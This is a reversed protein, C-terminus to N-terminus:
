KVKIVDLTFDLGAASNTLKSTSIWDVGLKGYSCLNSLTVGGSVEVLIKRRLGSSILAKMTGKVRSPKMNDLMVLGAGSEAATLADDKSAVEVEIKSGFGGAKAAKVAKQIDGCFAELHNDKLLIMDYLGMRHTLGGGLLVAKKDLMMLGPATKRTAVIKSKSGISALVGVYKRTLTTIGSMRSLVNLVVREVPFMDRAKGELTFILQGRNIREGDRVYTNVKIKHRRLLTASEFVGSIFGVSNSRVQAIIRRNPTIQSTLDGSGVDEQLMTELHHILQRNDM